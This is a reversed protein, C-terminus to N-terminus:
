HDSYNISKWVGGSAAGGYIINNKMDVDIATIRGSMGAPGINRPAKDKYHAPDFSQGVAYVAFTISILQALILKM